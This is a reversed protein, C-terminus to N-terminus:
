RHFDNRAAAAVLFNRGIVVNTFKISNALM